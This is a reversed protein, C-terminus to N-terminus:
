TLPAVRDREVQIKYQQWRFNIRNQLFSAAFSVRQSGMAGATDFYDECQQCFYYCEMHLSGYYLNPNRAKLAKERPAFNAQGHKQGKVFLKLALKTARQLDMDTYLGPLGPAFTPAPAPTLARSAASIPTPIGSGKTPARPAGGALEDKGTPPPNSWPSCCTRSGAM